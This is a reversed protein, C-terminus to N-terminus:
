RWKRATPTARKKVERGEENETTILHGERMDRVGERGKLWRQSKQEEAAKGVFSNYTGKV